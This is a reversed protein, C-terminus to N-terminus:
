VLRERAETRKERKIRGWRDVDVDVVILMVRGVADKM